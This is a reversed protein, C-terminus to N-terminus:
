SNVHRTISAAVVKSLGMRNKDLASHPLPFSQDNKVILRSILEKIKYCFVLPEGVNQTNRGNLAYYEAEVPISDKNEGRHVSRHALFM